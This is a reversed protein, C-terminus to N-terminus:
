DFKANQLLLVHWFHPEFYPIVLMSQALSKVRKPRPLRSGHFKSHTCFMMVQVGFIFDMECIYSSRDM